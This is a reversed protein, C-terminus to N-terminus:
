LDLRTGTNSKASRNSLLSGGCVIYGGAAENTLELLLTEMPWNSLHVPIPHKADKCHPHFLKLAFGQPQMSM